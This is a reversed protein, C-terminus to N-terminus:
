IYLRASVQTANETKITIIFGHIVKEWRLMNSSIIKM